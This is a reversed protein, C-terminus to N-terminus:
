VLKKLIYGKECNTTAGKYHLQYANITITMSFSANTALKYRFRNAIAQEKSFQLERSMNPRCENVHWKSYM